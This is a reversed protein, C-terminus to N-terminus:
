PNVKIIVRKYRTLAPTGQDTVALIIHISGVRESQPIVFWAERENANEIKLPAGTKGSSITYTGAEPYYFWHYSLEDGDPDTSGVASFDIRDGVKATLSSDHNLNPIPPHNAEEYSKITWDMRASFDNQFAERWRWITAKNDTHWRGDIGLVEDM